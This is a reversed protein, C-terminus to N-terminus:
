HGSRLKFPYVKFMLHMNNHVFAEYGHRKFEENMKDIDERVKDELSVPTASASQTSLDGGSSPMQTLPMEISCPVFSEDSPKYVDEQRDAYEAYQAYLLNQNCDTGGQSVRSKPSEGQSSM